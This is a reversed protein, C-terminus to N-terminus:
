GSPFQVTITLQSSDVLSWNTCENSWNVTDVDIAFVPGGTSVVEIHCSTTPPTSSENQRTIPVSIHCPCGGSSCGFVRCDAGTGSGGCAGSLQYSAVASRGAPVEVDVVPYSPDCPTEPGCALGCIVTLIAALLRSM